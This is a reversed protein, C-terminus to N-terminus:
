ENDEGQNQTNNKMVELVEPISVMMRSKKLKYHPVIGEKVADLLQRYPVGILDSAETITYLKPKDTSTGMDTGKKSIPVAMLPM